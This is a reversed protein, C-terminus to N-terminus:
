LGQVREAVEACTVDMALCKARRAPTVRRIDDDLQRGVFQMLHDLLWLGGAQGQAAVRHGVPGGGDIWWRWQTPPLGFGM